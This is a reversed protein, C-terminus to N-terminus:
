WAVDITQGALPKELLLFNQLRRLREFPRKLAYYFGLELDLLRKYM